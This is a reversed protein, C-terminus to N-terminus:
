ECQQVSTPYRLDTSLILYKEAMWDEVHNETVDKEM